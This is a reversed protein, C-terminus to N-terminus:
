GPRSDQEGERAGSRLTRAEEEVKSVLDLRKVVELGGTEGQQIM